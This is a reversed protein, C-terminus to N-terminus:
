ETVFRMYGEVLLCAHQRMAHLASGLDEFVQKVASPHEQTLCSNLTTVIVGAHSTCLPRTHLLFTLITHRHPPPAFRLLCPTHHETLFSPQSSAEMTTVAYNVLGVAGAMQWWVCSNQGCVGQAQNSVVGPRKRTKKSQLPFAALLAAAATATVSLAAAATGTAGAATSTGAALGPQQQTHMGGPGRTRSRAKNRRNTNRQHCAAPAAAAAQAAAAAAGAAIAGSTNDTEPEWLDDGMEQEDDSGDAHVTQWSKSAAAAARRKPRHQPHAEPQDEAQVHAGDDLCAGAGVVAAATAAVAAAVAAALPVQQPSMSGLSTNAASDYGPTATVPNCLLLAYVVLGLPRSWQCLCLATLTFAFDGSPTHTHHSATPQLSPYWRQHSHLRRFNFIHSSRAACPMIM